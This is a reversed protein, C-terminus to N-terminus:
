PQPPGCVVGCTPSLPITNPPCLGGSSNCTPGKTTFTPALFSISGTSTICATRNRSCCQDGCLSKIARWYPFNPIPALCRRYCLDSIFETIAYFDPCLAPITPANAIVVQQELIISLEYEWKDQQISKDADSLSQYWTDFAPCNGYDAKFNWFTYSWIGNSLLCLRVECNVIMDSCAPRPPSAGLSMQYNVIQNYSCLSGTPPATYCPSSVPLGPGDDRSDLKKTFFIGPNAKVIQDLAQKLTQNSAKNLNENKSSSINDDSCSFTLFSILSILGLGRFFLHKM